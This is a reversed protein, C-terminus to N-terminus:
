VREKVFEIFKEAQESAPSDKLLGFGISRKHVPEFLKLRTLTGDNLEDKVFRDIVCAIGLGTKVFEILLDMSTVELIQEPEVHHERFYADIYRRSLNEEDLLMLNAASFLEASCTHVFEDTFGERDKLHELYKPTAVFIDEIDGFGTFSISDLNSPKGILGVDVKHSQLLSITQLTPQCYISIRINPYKENFDRLLPLLVYKCLTSSAGIKLHGIGLKKKRSLNEEAKDLHMFAASTHEYLLKGADTLVVGRSGRIFLQTDLNQELHSIAKSIAPQSIFLKKAAKSINGEEAVANFIHYLSLNQEMDPSREYGFNINIM